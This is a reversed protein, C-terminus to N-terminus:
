YKSKKSLFAILAFGVLVSIILCVLFTQGAETHIFNDINQESQSRYVIIQETAFTM